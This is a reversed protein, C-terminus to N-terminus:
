SPGILEEEGRAVMTRIILKGCDRPFMLPPVLGEGTRTTRAALDSQRLYAECLIRLAACLM